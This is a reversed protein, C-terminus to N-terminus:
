GAEFEQARKSGASGTKSCVGQVAVQEGVKTVETLSPV